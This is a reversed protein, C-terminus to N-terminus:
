RLSVMRVSAAKAALTRGHVIRGRDLVAHASGNAALLVPRIADDPVDPRRNEGSKNARVEWSAAERRQPELVARLCGNEATCPSLAIWATVTLSPDFEMYTRDRHWGIAVAADHLVRVAIAPARAVGADGLLVAHIDASDNFALHQGDAERPAGANTLAGAHRLAFLLRREDGTLAEALDLVADEMDLTDKQIQDALANQAEAFQEPTLENMRFEIDVGPLMNLGDIVFNVMKAWGQQVDFLRLAIGEGIIDFANIVLRPFFRVTEFLARFTAIVLQGWNAIESRNEAVEGSPRSTARSVVLWVAM